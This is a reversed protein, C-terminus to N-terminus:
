AKNPKDIEYLACGSCDESWERTCGAKKRPGGPRHLEADDDKFCRIGMKRMNENSGVDSKPFEKGRFIINFSMIFVGFGIIFAAALLVKLM